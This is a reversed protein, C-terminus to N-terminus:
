ETKCLREKLLMETVEPSVDGACLPEALRKAEVRRGEAKVLVALFGQAIAHLSKEAWPRTPTPMAMAARLDAEGAALGGNDAHLVATLIKTMPDNPYRRAFEPARMAVKSLAVGELQSAPMFEAAAVRRAEYGRAALAAAPLGLALYAVAALGALKHFAPRFDERDWTQSLIFALVGGALAGGLHAYYNVHNHAGLYLPAIASAGFFLATVGMYAVMRPSEAFFSMVFGAAVLGSIAGSAGVGPTWGVSGALSGVEGGLASLAFIAAVWGHGIMRELVVGVMLMVVCNGILHAFSGHLLPATILRWLQGDGISLDYSNAGQAVLCDVSISGGPGVDFAFALQLRFAITLAAAMGLTFLPIGALIMAVFGDPAGPKEATEADPEAAAPAVPRRVPAIVPRPVGRRGFTIEGGMGRGAMALLGSLM